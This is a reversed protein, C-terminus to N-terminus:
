NNGEKPHWPLNKLVIVTMPVLLVGVAGFLKLGVFVSVLMLLPHVGVKEGIIKPEVFHRIATIVLYLVVLGVANKVDGNVASIVGWPILVTGCGLVPLIDVVSIVLAWVLSYKVGLVTFGLFLEIFTIGLIVFYGKAIKLLNGFCVEKFEIIRSLGAKSFNNIFYERIEDYDKALFTSAVVIVVLSLIFYPVSSAIGAALSTVFSTIRATLSEVAAQPVGQFMGVTSDPMKGFTVSLREVVSSIFDSLKNLYQPIAAVVGDLQKFLLFGLLFVTGIILVYFLIVTLVAIPKRKLKIRRCVSDIVGRLGVVTLAAVAFPFLVTSLLKLGVFWLAIITVCFATNVLFSKKREQEM